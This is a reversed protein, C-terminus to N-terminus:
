NAEEEKKEEFRRYHSCALHSFKSEISFSSESKKKL